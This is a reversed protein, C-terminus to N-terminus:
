RRRIHDEILGVIAQLAPLIDALPDPKATAAKIKDGLGMAIHPPAVQMAPGLLARASPGIGIQARALTSLQGPERGLQGIGLASIPQYPSMSEPEDLPSNIDSTPDLAEAVPDKSRRHKPQMVLALNILEPVPDLGWFAINRCIWKAQKDTIYDRYRLSSRINATIDLSMPGKNHGDIYDLHQLILKASSPALTYQTTM